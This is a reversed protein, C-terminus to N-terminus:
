IYDIIQNSLIVPRRHVVELGADNLDRSFSDAIDVYDPKLFCFGVEQSLDLRRNETFGNM